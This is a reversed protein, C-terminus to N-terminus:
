GQPHGSITTAHKGVNPCGLTINTYGLLLTLSPVQVGAERGLTLHELWLAVSGKIFVAARIRVKLKVAKQLKFGILMNCYRLISSKDKAGNLRFHQLKCQDKLQYLVAAM